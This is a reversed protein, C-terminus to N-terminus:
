FGNPGGPTADGAPSPAFASRDEDLSDPHMRAISVGARSAPVAPFASEVFGDPTRLELGEGANSLGDHGLRELRILLTEPLPRVDEGGPSYNRAVLLAFTGPALEAHPLTVAGGSDALTWGELEVPALGDNELEIWESASEAGRPNALVENIVVHPAVPLTHWSADIPAEHGGLDTATGQVPVTSSPSLGRVVFRAGRAASRVVATGPLSITWLAAGGSRVVARDDMVQVCGPGLASEVDRCAAPTMASPSGALVVPSPDFAVDDLAPPPLVVTGDPAPALALRVCRDAATGASDAGVELAARVNGPALVLATQKTRPPDQAAAAAAAVDV